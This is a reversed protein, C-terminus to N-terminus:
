VISILDIKIELAGGGDWISADRPNWPVVNETMIAWTVLYWPICTKPWQGLHDVTYRPPFCLGGGGRCVVLLEWPYGYGVLM